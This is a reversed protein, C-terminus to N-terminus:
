LSPTRMQTPPPLVTSKESVRSLTMGHIPKGSAGHIGPKAERDRFSPFPSHSCAVPIVHGVAGMDIGEGAVVQRRGRRLRLEQEVQRFQLEGLAHVARRFQEVPMDRFAPSPADADLRRVQAPGIGVQLLLGVADGVHQDILEADDGAIAHQQARRVVRHHRGAPERHHFDASDGRRGHRQQAGLFELMDDGLRFTLWARHSRRRASSSLSAAASDGSSFCMRQNLSAEASPRSAAIAFCDASNVLTSVARSSVQMRAKVEPVVPWGLAVM